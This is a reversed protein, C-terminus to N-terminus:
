KKNDCSYLYFWDNGQCYKCIKDPDKLNPFYPCILNKDYLLDNQLKQELGTSDKQLITPYTIRLLNPNNPDRDQDRFLKILENCYGIDKTSQVPLALNIHKDLEDFKTSFYRVGKVQTMESEALYELIFQSFIYEPIYKANKDVSNVSRRIMCLAVLPWSFISKDLIINTYESIKIMPLTLDLIPVQINDYDVCSVFYKDLEDFAGIETRCTEISNGGYFCPLKAKTFRQSAIFEKHEFPIHPISTEYKTIRFYFRFNDSVLEDISNYDKNYVPLVGSYGNEDESLFKDIHEKFLLYAQNVKGQFYLEIVNPVVDIFGIVKSYNEDDEFFSTTLQKYDSLVEAICSEFSQGKRRKIPLKNKLYQYLENKTEM